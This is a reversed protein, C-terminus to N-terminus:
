LLSSRKLDYWKWGVLIIDRIKVCRAACRMPLSRTHIGSRSTSRPLNKPQSARFEIPDEVTIVHDHRHLNAHDLMAAADNVGGSGTPHNGSHIGKKLMGSNKKEGSNPPLGLEDITVVCQPISGFSASIGNSGIQFFNVRYRMIDPIEGFDGNRFPKLTERPAIEYVMAKLDDNKLPPFDACVMVTSASCRQATLESFIFTPAKSAMQRFLSLQPGHVILWPALISAMLPPNM